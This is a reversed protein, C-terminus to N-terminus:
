VDIRAKNHGSNDDTKSACWRFHGALYLSSVKLGHEWWVPFRVGCRLTTSWIQRLSASLNEGVIKSCIALL